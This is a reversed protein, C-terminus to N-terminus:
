FAQSAILLQDIEDPTKGILASMAHLDDRWWYYSQFKYTTDERVAPDAITGIAALITAEANTMGGALLTRLGATRTIRVPVSNITPAPSFDELNPADTDTPKPDTSWSKVCRTLVDLPEETPHAAIYNGIINELYATQDVFYGPRDALPTESTQDDGPSLAENRLTWANTVGAWEGDTPSSYVIQSSSVNISIDAPTAM